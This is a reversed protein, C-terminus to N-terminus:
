CEPGSHQVASGVQVKRQATAIADLIASGDAKRRLEAFRDLRGSALREAVTPDYLALTLAAAIEDPASGPIVLAASGATELMGPEARIVVPKGFAIADLLPVAFGEHESMSVCVDAREMLFRLAGDSIDHVFAIRAAVDGPFSQVLANLSGAYAVSASRGVIALGVAPNGSALRAFGCLLQHVGKHPLLQGVFLVLREVPPLAIPEPVIPTWREVSLVPPCVVIDSLAIRRRDHARLGLYLDGASRRSNAMLVDFSGALRRQRLGRRALEAARPDFAILFREPTVNHFFIVKPNRLRAIASMAPDEISFHFFIVDSPDLDRLVEPTVAITSRDDPHCNEAVLRAQHGNQELLQAIQRCFNGVADRRQIDRAIIRVRM